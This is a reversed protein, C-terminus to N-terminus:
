KCCHPAREISKADSARSVQCVLREETGRIRFVSALGRPMRSPILQCTPLRFGRSFVPKVEAKQHGRPLVRPLPRWSARGKIGKQQGWQWSMTVEEESNANGGSKRVLITAEDRGRGM